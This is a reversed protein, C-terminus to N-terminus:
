DLWFRHPQPRRKSKIPTIERLIPQQLSDPLRQVLKELKDYLSLFTSPKMRGAPRPSSLNRHPPQLHALSSPNRQLRFRPTGGNGLRVRSLYELETSFRLFLRKGTAGASRVFEM